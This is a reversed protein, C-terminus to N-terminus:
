HGLFSRLLAVVGDVGREDLAPPSPVLSRRRSQDLTVGRGEGAEGDVEPSALVDLLEHLVRENAREAREIAKPPLARQPRPQEGDLAPQQEVPPAGISPPPLLDADVLLQRRVYRKPTM